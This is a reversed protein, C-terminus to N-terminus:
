AEHAIRATDYSYDFFITPETYTYAIAKCDAQKAKSVIQASTAGQGHKLIEDNTIQSIDWNQCFRCRFNCGPTAIPYAKSGTFFHYM